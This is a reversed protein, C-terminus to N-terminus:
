MYLEDLYREEDSVDQIADSGADSPACVANSHRFTSSTGTRRRGRRATQATSRQPAGSTTAGLRRPRRRRM